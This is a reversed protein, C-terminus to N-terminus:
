KNLGKVYYFLVYKAKVLLIKINKYTTTFLVSLSDYFASLKLTNLGWGGTVTIGYFNYDVHCPFIKTEIQVLMQDVLVFPRKGKGNTLTKHKDLM